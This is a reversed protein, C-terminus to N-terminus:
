VADIKFADSERIGSSNRMKISIRHNHFDEGGTMRLHKLDRVNDDM